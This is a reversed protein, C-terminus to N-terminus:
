PSAQPCVKARYWWCFTTEEPVVGTSSVNPLSACVTIAPKRGSGSFPFCTGLGHSCSETQASSVAPSKEPHRPRKGGPGRSISQTEAKFSCMSPCLMGPFKKRGTKISIYNVWLVPYTQTCLRM